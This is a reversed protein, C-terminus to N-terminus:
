KEVYEHGYADSIRLASILDPQTAGSHIRYASSVSIGTSKAMALANLDGHEAAVDRLRGANFAYVSIDRGECTTPLNGQQPFSSWM